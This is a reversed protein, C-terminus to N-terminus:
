CQGAALRLPSAQVWNRERYTGLEEKRKRGGGSKMKGIDCAPETFGRGQSLERKTANM